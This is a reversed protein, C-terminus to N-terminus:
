RYAAIFTSVGASATEFKVSPASFSPSELIQQGVQNFAEKDPVRLWVLNLSKQALPHPNGNHTIPYADVAANLYERHITASSDYRGPPFVGVIEFELTIDKYNLGVFHDKRWGEKLIKFVIRVWSSEKDTRKLRQVVKEFEEKESGQLSDLDDMMTLLKSPDM